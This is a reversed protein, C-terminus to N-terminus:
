SIAPTDATKRAIGGIHWTREAASPTIQGEPKWAPIWALGPHTIVFDGFFSTIRERTRATASPIAKRYADMVGNVKDPYFDPCAHSIALYSGPALAARITEMVENPRESDSIFQLVPTLLIAVPERLDILRIFDPHSLIGDPNRLDANIVKVRDNETLLAQGHAIVIPDNDVYVVRAKPAISQAVQHVNEAAPLGVGIDVFQEIGFERALHRVVRQSFRRNEITIRRIAPDAEIAERACERDVKFNDKGDLLHDIVRAISATAATVQPHSTRIPPDGHSLTPSVPHM